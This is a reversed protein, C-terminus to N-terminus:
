ARFWPRSKNRSIVAYKFSKLMWSWHFHWSINWLNAATFAEFIFIDSPSIHWKEMHGCHIGWCL